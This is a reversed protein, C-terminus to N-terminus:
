CCNIFNHDPNQYDKITEQYKHYCKSILQSLQKDEGAMYGFLDSFHIITKDHTKGKANSPSPSYQGFCDIM